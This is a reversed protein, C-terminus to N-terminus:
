LVPNLRRPERAGRADRAGAIQQDTHRDRLAPNV